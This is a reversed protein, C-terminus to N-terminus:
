KCIFDIAWFYQWEQYNIHTGIGDLVEILEVQTPFNKLIKYTSGDVLTRIQYTNGYDDRESIQTSSGEVYLNDIMIVKSGPKLKNSLGKFFKVIDQKPIHSYWFGAFSSDPILPLQPINYADGIIFEVNAPTRQKAIQVTELSSDIAIVKLANPAFFQTWYGTGCAIELVSKQDFAHSLWNEIQRLDKQREPKLYIKDYEPARTAYYDQM